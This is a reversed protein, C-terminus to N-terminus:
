GMAYCLMRRGELFVFCPLLCFSGSPRFLDIPEYVLPADTSPKGARSDGDLTVIVWYGRSVSPPPFGFPSSSAPVIAVRKKRLSENM